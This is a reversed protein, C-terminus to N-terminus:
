GAAHLDAILEPYDDDGRPIRYRTEEHQLMKDVVMNQFRHVPEEFRFSFRGGRYQPAATGQQVNEVISIDQTNILDWFEFMDQLVEEGDDAAFAGDHSLFTHEQTADWLYATTQEAPSAGPAGLPNM